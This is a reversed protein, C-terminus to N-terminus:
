DASRVAAITSPAYGFFRPPTQGDHRVMAAIMANHHITHSLVFIMERGLTSGVHDVRGTQGDTMAAVRLPHNASLAAMSRLLTRLRTIEALAADRENEIATGRERRDYDIPQREVGDLLARVHDLLHRTHGGVSGEFPGTNRLAYQADRLTTLVEALQLLVTDLSARVTELNQATQSMFPVGRPDCRTIPM